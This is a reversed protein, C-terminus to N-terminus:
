NPKLGEIIKASIWYSLGENGTFFIYKGDPTIRPQNGDMNLKEGLDKPETWSNDKNKFSIYISFIRPNTSGRPHIRAFLIFGGDPSIAPGFVAESMVTNKFILVPELYKGNDFKSYYIGGSNEKSRLDGGFYLNNQRDFSFQWHVSYKNFVADLLVPDSWGNSTKEVFYFKEMQDWTASGEKYGQFYLKKGDASFYPCRHAYGKDLFRVETPATWKGNIFGSTIIGGHNQFENSENLTWSVEKFDPSFVINAYVGSHTSVIGGAFIEPNMGPETQGFYKTKLEPFAQPAIDAKSNSLMHLITDQEGKEAINYATQGLFNRVNIGSCRALLLEVIKTFGNYVALHLPTDGDKNQIAPDANNLLLLEVSQTFGRDVSFHLPTDGNTNMPSPNAGKGILYKIIDTYNRNAAIHLPTNNAANKVYALSSDSEVLEKIKNLNNNRVADFIEQTNAKESFFLLILLLLVSKLPIM